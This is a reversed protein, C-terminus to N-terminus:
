ERDKALEKFARVTFELGDMQMRSTRLNDTILVIWKANARLDVKEFLKTGEYISRCLGRLSPEGSPEINISDEVFKKFYIENNSKNKLEFVVKVSTDM